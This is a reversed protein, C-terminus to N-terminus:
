LCFAHSSVQWLRPVRVRLFSDYIEELDQTLIGEGKIALQLDKLSKHIVSLLKNFREIEQDLFTILICHILPDYGSYFSFFSFTINGPFFSVPPLTPPLGHIKVM